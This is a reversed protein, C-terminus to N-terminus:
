KGPRHNTSINIKKNKGEKTFRANQDMLMANGSVDTHM